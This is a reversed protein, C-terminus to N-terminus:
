AQGKSCGSFHNTRQDKRKWFSGRGSIGSMGMEMSQGRTLDFARIGNCLSHRM